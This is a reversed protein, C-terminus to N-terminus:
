RRYRYWNAFAGLLVMVAGLGAFRLGLGLQESRGLRWGELATAADAQVTKETEAAAAAQRAARDEPSENSPAFEVAYAVADARAHAVFDPPGELAHSLGVGAIGLLGTGLLTALLGVMSTISSMVGQRPPPLVPAGFVARRVAVPGFLAAVAAGRFANRGLELDFAEKMVVAAGVFAVFGGSILLGDKWDFKANM